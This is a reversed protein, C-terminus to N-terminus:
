LTMYGIKLINLCYNFTSVEITKEPVVDIVDPVVGLAEMKGLTDKCFVFYINILLFVFYKM